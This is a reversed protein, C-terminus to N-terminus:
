HKEMVVSLGDVVLGQRLHVGLMRRGDGGLKKAATGPVGAWDSTLTDAADLTGDPKLKMLVARVGRVVKDANVELGAVAYGSKALIQKQGGPPPENAFVPVLRSLCPGGAWDGMSFNFGLLPREKEVLRQPNGGSTSGLWETDEGVGVSASVPPQPPRAPRGPPFGPPTGPPPFRGPGTAVNQGPPPASPPPSAIQKNPAAQNGAVAGRLTTGAPWMKGIREIEESTWNRAYTKAAAGLTVSNSVKFPGDSTRDGRVVFYFEVDTPVDALSGAGFAIELTVTGQTANRVDVDVNVLQHREKVPNVAISIPLREGTKALEWDVLLSEKGFKRAGKRPNKLKYFAMEKRARLPLKANGEAAMLKEGGQDGYFAAGPEPGGCGALGVIAVSVVVWSILRNFACM